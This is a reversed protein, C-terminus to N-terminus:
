DPVRTGPHPRPPCEPIAQPLEAKREKSSGHVSEQGENSKHKGRAVEGSQSFVQDVLCAGYAIPVVAYASGFALNFTRGVSFAVDDTTVLRAIDAALVTGVAVDRAATASRNDITGSGIATLDFTATCGIASNVALIDTITLDSKGFTAALYLVAGLAFRACDRAPERANALLRSFVDGASLPAPM